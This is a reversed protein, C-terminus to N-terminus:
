NQQHAFCSAAAAPGLARQWLSRYQRRSVFKVPFASASPFHATAAKLEHATSFIGFIASGSGTMLAPRAGLQRLKRVVSPLNRHTKFVPKEFDNVFRLRCFDPEGLSWALSQFERLIPFERSSTLANAVNHDEEGQAKRGLVRYAEATSVHVGTAIVLAFRPPQDPLPYLETGRGLGLATGGHLFFPVDSGLQEALRLLEPMSVQKGALAALAILVAAANSSGGGLGAGMPIMKQLRIQLHGRIKLEDAALKAARLVLNDPIHLSSHLEMSSRKGPEFKIEITDRLSITQFVTRLEHYGDSRKYLVRLDLNLKALSPVTVRAM